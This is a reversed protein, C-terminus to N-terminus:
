MKKKQCMLRYMEATMRCGENLCQGVASRGDPGKRFKCGVEVYKTPWQSYDLVASNTPRPPGLDVGGSAAATASNKEQAPYVVVVRQQAAATAPQEVHLLQQEAPIYSGHSTM